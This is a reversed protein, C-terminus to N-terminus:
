GALNMDGRIVGPTTASASLSATMLNNDIKVASGSSTEISFAAANGFAGTGLGVLTGAGFSGGNEVLLATQRIGVGSTATLTQGTSIVTNDGGLLRGLASVSGLEAYSNTIIVSGSQWDLGGSVYGTEFNGAHVRFTSNQSLRIMGRLDLRGANYDLTSSRLQIAPDEPRLALTIDPGANNQGIRIISDDATYATDVRRQLYSNQSLEVVGGLLNVEAGNTARVPQMAGAWRGGYMELKSDDFITPVELGRSSAFIMEGGTVRMITDESFTRISEPEFELQGDTVEVYSARASFSATNADNAEGSTSFRGGAIRLISGDLEFSTVEVEGGQVRLTSGEDVRMVSRGGGQLRRGQMTLRANDRVTMQSAGRLRMTSFGVLRSNDRLTSNLADAYFFGGVGNTSLDYPLSAAGGGSANITASGALNLTSPGGLILDGGRGGVGDPAIDDSRPPWPFAYMATGGQGGTGGSLDVYASANLSILGGAALILSGGDGGNGGPQASSLVENNPTLYYLGGHGDAGDQGSLDLGDTIAVPVLFEITQGDAGRAAPPSTYIQAISQAAPVCMGAAVILGRILGARERRGIGVVATRVQAM